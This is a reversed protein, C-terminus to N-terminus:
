MHDTRHVRNVRAAGVIDIHKGNFQVLLASRLGAFDIM